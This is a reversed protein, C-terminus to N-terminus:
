LEEALRGEFRRFVAIGLVLTAFSVAVLYAVTGASPWRLDYLLNRYATVFQVMPNLDYLRLAWGHAHDQVLKLSYIIPTGYFWMQLLIGILHQTDRFYVNLISFVLAVGLTFMTQILILVILAPIWPLVNNGFVLLAVLLVGMEILFSVLWSAVSAAVLIERAFYVKKVLNANGVLTYMGGTLCNSLYNWPLLGCLLFLAFVHLGSPKGPDPDSKLLVSFVATFIVMTALPNLLSWGWGLISRKYKSRLERLTLNFFLDRSQRVDGLYSM